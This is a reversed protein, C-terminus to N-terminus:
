WNPPWLKRSTPVLSKNNSGRDLIYLITIIIFIILLNFILSNPYKGWVYIKSYDNLIDWISYTYLAIFFHPYASTIPEVNILVQKIRELVKIKKSLGFSLKTDIFFLTILDASIFLTLELFIIIFLNFLIVFNTKQPLTPTFFLLLNSFSFFITIYVTIKIIRKKVDLLSLCAVILYNFGYLNEFISRQWGTRHLIVKFTIGTNENINFTTFNPLVDEQHWEIPWSAVSVETNNIYSNNFDKINVTLNM